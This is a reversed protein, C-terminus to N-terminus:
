MEHSLVHVTCALVYMLLCTQLRTDTQRDAHKSTDVGWGCHAGFGSGLLGRLRLGSVLGNGSGCVELVRSQQFLGKITVM